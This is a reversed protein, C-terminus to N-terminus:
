GPDGRRGISTPRARQPSSSRTKVYPNEIPNIDIAVGRSHLSFSTGGTVPRCNFASTNDWAMSRSGDGGYEEIPIM